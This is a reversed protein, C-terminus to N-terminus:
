CKRMEKGTSTSARKGDDNGSAQLTRRFGIGMKSVARTTGGASAADKSARDIPGNTSMLRMYAVMILKSM